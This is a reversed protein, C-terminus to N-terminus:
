EWGIEKSIEPTFGSFHTFLRKQFIDGLSKGDSTLLDNRLRPDGTKAFRWTYCMALHGLDNIENALDDIEEQTYDKM